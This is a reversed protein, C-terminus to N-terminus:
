NTFIVIDGVSYSFQESATTTQMLAHCQHPRSQEGAQYRTCQCNSIFNTLKEYGSNIAMEPLLHTPHVINKKYKGNEWTFVSYYTGSLINTQDPFCLGDKELQRGFKATSLVNVPSDPYYYVDKIIYAHVAGDDDAWSWSVNGKGAPKAKGGITAINKFDVSDSFRIFHSKNNCIHANSCNDLLVTSADTDFVVTRVTEAYTMLNLCTRSLILKAPPNNNLIKKTACSVTRVHKIAKIIIITYVVIISFITAFHKIIDPPEKM